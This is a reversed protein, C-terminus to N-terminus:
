GLRKGHIVRKIVIENKKIVNAIIYTEEFATCLYKKKSFRFYRCPLNRDPYLSLSNIHLKLRLYYKYALEFSSNETIYDAMKIIDRDSMKAYKIVFNTNGM